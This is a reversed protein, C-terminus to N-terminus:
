GYFDNAFVSSAYYDKAFQGTMLQTCMVANELVLWSKRYCALDKLFTGPREIVYWTKPACIWMRPVGSVTDVLHAACGVQVIIQSANTAFYYIEINLQKIFVISVM